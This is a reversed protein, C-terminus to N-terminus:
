ICTNLIFKSILQNKRVPQSNIVSDLKNPIYYGRIKLPINPVVPLKIYENKNLIIDRLELEGLKLSEIICKEDEIEAIILTDIEFPIICNYEQTVNLYKAFLETSYYTKNIKSNKFFLLPCSGIEWFRDLVYLNNLDIEHFHQHELNDGAIYSLSFPYITSGITDFSIEENISIHQFVQCRGGKLDKRINYFEESDISKYPALINAMPVLVTQGNQIPAHPM